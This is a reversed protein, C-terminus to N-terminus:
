KNLIIEGMFKKVYKTQRNTTLENVVNEFIITVDEKPLVEVVTKLNVM